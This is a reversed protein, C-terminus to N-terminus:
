MLSQIPRIAMSNCLFFFQRTTPNIMALFSFDRSTVDAAQVPAPPTSPQRVFEPLQWCCGCRAPVGCSGRVQIEADLSKGPNKKRRVSQCLNLGGVRRALNNVRGLIFRKAGRDRRLPHAIARWVIGGDRVTHLLGQRCDLEIGVTAWGANQFDRIGLGSRRSRCATPTWGALPEFGM